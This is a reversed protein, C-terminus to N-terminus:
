GNIKNSIEGRVSEGGNQHIHSSEVFGTKDRERTERSSELDSLCQELLDKPMLAKRLVDDEVTARL